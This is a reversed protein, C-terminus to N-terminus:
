PSSARHRVPWPTSAMPPPLLPRPSPEPGRAARLPLRPRAAQRPLCPLRPQRAVPRWTQRHGPALWAPLSLRPLLQPFSCRGQQQQQRPAPTTAARHRGHPRSCRRTSKKRTFAPARSRRRLRRLSPLLRSSPARRAQPPDRWRRLWCLSGSRPPQPQRWRLTRLPRRRVSAARAPMRASCTGGWARGANTARRAAARWPAALPHTAARLPQLYAAPSRPHTHWTRCTRTPHARM